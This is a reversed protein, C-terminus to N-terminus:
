ENREGTRFTNHQINADGVQVGQSGRVDIQYRNFANGSSREAYERWRALNARSTLTDPHDPGLVRLMDALVQEYASVAGAADGAEGRWSALNRRTLLTNPHDSGLVRLTDALLQDYSIAAGAPDGARGRWSALNGRTTLASPHDAGLESQSTVCLEQFFSAAAAVQGSEGLSEGARLLVPPIGDSQTLLNRGAQSHLAFANARLLQVYTMDGEVDPWAELLANAVALALTHDHDPKAAERVVRQVLAHVRVVRSDTTVLNLRHLARLADRTDEGDIQRGVREACYATVSPTAFVDAPIGNPDLLAAIELVPRATGHPSQRDALAISLEWSAVVAAQHDDPLAIPSLDALRRSALRQRYEQCTLGQDSIYATAQALALPLYGLDRALDDAGDLQSRQGPLKDNVYQRAEDPTFLDVQVLRRGAAALASDRRRTTVVTRGLSNAPPWLGTLDAPDTLDDLVILWRRKTNALWSLFRAAAQDPNPTDLGTVEVAAEAYRSIVSTRSRANIWVLLDVEQGLWLRNAYAAALQTKGVGGLGSLVQTVVATQGGGTAHDLQASTGREQYSDALAPVVGIRHPWDAPTRNGVTVTGHIVGAAVGQGSAIAVTRPQLVVTVFGQDQVVIPPPCDAIRCDRLITPIGSGEGEVLRTWSLLHALRFNRKISQGELDVLNYRLGETLDRGLWTGPSSIELRDLFMRVHVCSEMANYDRHVLANALVERVAVMPYDYTDVTRATDPSPMEGRRTRDVIFQRAADIQLPVTGTFTLSDREASKDPGFYRTCKVISTPTFATPNEAFLLVGARSLGGNVWLCARELFEWPTLSSPYASAIEDRLGERFSQVAGFDFSTLGTPQDLFQRDSGTQAVSMPEADLQIQPPYHKRLSELLDEIAQIPDDCHRAVKTKVALQEVYAHKDMQVVFVRPRGGIRSANVIQHTWASGVARVTGCLIVPLDHALANTAEEVVSEGVAVMGAHRVEYGAERLPQALLEAVAEEGDAAAVYIAQRQM